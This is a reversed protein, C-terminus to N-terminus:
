GAFVLVTEDRASGCHRFQQHTKVVPGPSNVSTLGAVGRIQIKGFHEVFHRDFPEEVLQVVLPDLALQQHLNAFAHRSSGELNSNTLGERM